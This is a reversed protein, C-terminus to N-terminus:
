KPMPILKLNGHSVGRQSTLSDSFHQLSQRPGKLITVELCDDHNIHMHLTSVSLDHHDHQLHTLRRSLERTEHKFVYTLVGMCLQNDESDDLILSERVLDRVAESRSSYGRSEIVEDLHEALDDDITITIRQM